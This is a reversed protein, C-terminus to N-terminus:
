LALTFADDRKALQAAYAVRDLAQQQRLAAEREALAQRQRQQAALSERKAQAARDGASADVVVELYRRQVEELRRVLPEPLEGEPLQEAIGPVVDLDTSSM